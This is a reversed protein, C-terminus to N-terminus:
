KEVRETNHKKLHLVNAEFNINSIKVAFLSFNKELRQNKEKEILADICKLLAIANNREQMSHLLSEDIKLKPLKEATYIVLYIM